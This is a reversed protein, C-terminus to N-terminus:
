VMLAEAAASMDPRGVFSTCTLTQREPDQPYFVFPNVQAATAGALLACASALRLTSM